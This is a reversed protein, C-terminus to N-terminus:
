KFIWSSRLAFIQFCFQFQSFIARFLIFFLKGSLYWFSAALDQNFSVEREELTEAFKVLFNSYSTDRGGIKAKVKDKLDIFIQPQDMPQILATSGAPIQALDFDALLSPVLHSANKDCIVLVSVSICFKKM